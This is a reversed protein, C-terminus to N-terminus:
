ALGNQLVSPHNLAAIQLRRQYTPHQVSGDMEREMNNARRVEMGHYHSSMGRYEENEARVKKGFEDHKEMSEWGTFMLAEHKGEEADCRWGDVVTWPKTVEVILNRYKEVKRDYETVHEGGEIFLRTIAMVPASFPLLSISPIPMHIVWNFDLVQEQLIADRKSSALFIRHTALDPWEGFVYIIAPDEISQYFKSQTNHTNAALKTRVFQLSKLVAPDTPSIEPKVHLQLIELIPM